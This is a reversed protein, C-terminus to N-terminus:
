PSGVPVFVLFVFIIYFLDFSSFLVLIVAVDDCYVQVYVQLLHLRILYSLWHCFHLFFLFSILMLLFSSWLIRVVVIIFTNFQFKHLRMFHYPQLQHFLKRPNQKSNQKNGKGLKPSILKCVHQRTSDFPLQVIDM